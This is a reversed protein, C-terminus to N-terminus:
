RNAMEKGPNYTKKLMQKGGRKYYRGKGEQERLKNVNSPYDKLNDRLYRKM